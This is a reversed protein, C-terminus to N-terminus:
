AFEQTFIGKDQFDLIVDDILNRPVNDVVEAMLCKIMMAPFKKDRIIKVAGDRYYVVDKFNVKRGLEYEYPCALLQVSTEGDEDLEAHTITICERVESDKKAFAKQLDLGKTKEPDKSIWGEAVMSIADVGWYTRMAMCLDACVGFRQEPKLSMLPRNLQAILAIRNNQWGFFNFAIDEGIGMDSVFARKALQASTLTLALKQLDDIYIDEM